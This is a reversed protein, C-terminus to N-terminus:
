NIFFYGSSNAYMCRQSICVILQKSLSASSLYVYFFFPKNQRTFHMYLSPCFFYFFLFYLKEKLVIKRQYLNFIIDIKASLYTWYNFYIAVFKHVRVLINLYLLKNLAKNGRGRYFPYIRWLKTMSHNLNLTFRIYKLLCFCQFIILGGYMMKYRLM